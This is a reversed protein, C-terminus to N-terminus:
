KGGYQRMVQTTGQLVRPMVEDPRGGQNLANVADAYYKILQDNLGNDHTYSSVYWGQAYPADRLFPAVLAEDALENAMDVRPYPEGFNREAAASSYLARLVEPSSLYKILRWAQDKKQSKGNVGEAWFSAWATREDGLTPAQTVAFKLDPNIAMVEHARWSPALMMAVEGRAFAVTSSPLTESWVQDKLFNTFFVFAQQAEQSTPQLPDAGNQLMLLGIIDSFHEVNAASGLAVGGREVGTASRVTLKSALIKVEAWTKPPQEGATELMQTNYYLGLGDYMLPVGVLQGNNQLLKAAVPYFTEQYDAASMVSTPMAALDDALMPTWAAHFRFVDPGQGSAIATQLRERYDKHTQKLYEVKIDPNATEFDSLVKEVIESPEWLGWYTITTVKQDTTSTQGQGPQGSSTPEGTDTIQTPEGGSLFKWALFGILGIVVVM